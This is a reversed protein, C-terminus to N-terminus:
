PLLNLAAKNFLGVLIQPCIGVILMIALMPAMTFREHITLDELGDWRQNLPGAFISQMTRLLFVATLFLGICALAAAWPVIAFVGKFILFEGTFGNLGPLGLSSFVSIGMLGCLVPAVSRIGGFDDLGRLGGSRQELVGVFGFLAAATVGHNFIQLIVGNLAAVRDSGPQGFAVGAAFVGLVCYGLHNVSSYAIVRKLDKQAMAALASFVITALALGLLPTQLQQIQSPFLPLLLRLFGYVGMKSLVGTMLVSVPAPAESYAEPLWTHFPVVPVKVALGLFVAAFVFVSIAGPTHSIWAFTHDLRRALEGTRGLESLRILDFTGTSQHIALFGVLMAVGGLLTYIFFQYAAKTARQTGPMRILLFVPVLSLEYYIFWHVFNLTTFTGFLLSELWLTLGVFSKQDRISGGILLAFMTVIATLLVLLIGIGDIGLFYEINLSPMWGHREVFQLSANDARFGALLAVVAGIAAGATGLGAGRILATAKGPLLAVVIVGLLPVCVLISLLISNM